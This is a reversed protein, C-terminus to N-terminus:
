ILDDIRVRMTVTGRVPKEWRLNVQDNNPGEKADYYPIGFHATGDGERIAGEPVISEM